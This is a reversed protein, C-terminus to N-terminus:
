YLKLYVRRSGASNLFGLTHPKGILLFTMKHQQYQDTKRLSLETGSPLVAVIWWTVVM